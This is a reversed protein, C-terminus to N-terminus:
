LTCASAYKGTWTPFFFALLQAACRPGRFCRDMVQNTRRGGKYVLSCTYSALPVVLALYSCFLVFFFFFPALRFVNNEEERERRKVAEKKVDQSM